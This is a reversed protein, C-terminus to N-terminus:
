NQQEITINNKSVVGELGDISIVYNGRATGIFGDYPRVLKIGTGSPYEGLIVPNVAQNSKNQYVTVVGDSATLWANPGDGRPVVTEWYYGLNELAVSYRLDTGAIVISVDDGKELRYFLFEDPRTSVVM